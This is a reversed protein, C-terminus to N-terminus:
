YKRTRTSRRPQSQVTTRKRNPTLLETLSPECMSDRVKRVFSSVSNVSNLKLETLFVRQTDCHFETFPETDSDFEDEENNLVRLKYELRTSRDDLEKLLNDLVRRPLGRSVLTDVVEKMELLVSCVTVNYRFTDMVYKSLLDNREVDELTVNDFNEM